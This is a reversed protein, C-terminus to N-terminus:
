HFAYGADQLAARQATSAEIIELVVADFLALAEGSSLDVLVPQGYSSASHEATLTGAFEHGTLMNRFRMPADDTM